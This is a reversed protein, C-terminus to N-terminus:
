KFREVKLRIVGKFMLQWEDTAHLGDRTNNYYDYHDPDLHQVNENGFYVVTVALWLGIMQRVGSTDRLPTSPPLVVVIKYGKDLLFQMHKQFQKAFAAPVGPEDWFIADNSGLWYVVHKHGDIPMLDPPIEFATAFRTSQAMCKYHHGDLQLQHCWSTSQASLSDGMGITADAEAAWMVCAAVLAAFFVSMVQKM